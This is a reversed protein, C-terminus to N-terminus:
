FCFWQINHAETPGRMEVVPVALSVELGVPVVAMATIGMACTADDGYSAPNDRRRWRQPKLHFCAAFTTRVWTVGVVKRVLCQKDQQGAAKNGQYLATAQEVRSVLLPLIASLSM